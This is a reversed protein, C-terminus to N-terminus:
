DAQFLKINTEPNIGLREIVESFLYMKLDFPFARWFKIKRENRKNPDKVRKFSPPSLFTALIHNAQDLSSGAINSALEEETKSYVRKEEATLTEGRNKKLIIEKELDELDMYTQFDLGISQIDSTDHLPKINFKFLKKNYVVELNLRDPSFTQLLDRENDIVEEFEKIKEENEKQELPEKVTKAYKNAEKAMETLYEPSTAKNEPMLM